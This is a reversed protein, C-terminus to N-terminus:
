GVFNFFQKLYRVPNLKEYIFKMLILKNNFNLNWM